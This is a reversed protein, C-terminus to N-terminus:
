RKGASGSRASAAAQRRSARDAAERELSRRERVTSVVIWVIAVGLLTPMLAALTVVVFPRGVWLTGVVASIGMFLGLGAALKM